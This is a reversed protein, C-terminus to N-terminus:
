ALVEILYSVVEKIQVPDEGELNWVCNNEFQALKQQNVPAKLWCKKAGV